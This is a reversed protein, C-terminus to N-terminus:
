ELTKIQQKVEDDLGALAARLAAEEAAIATLRTESAELEEVYRTRLAGEKGEKGLAGMNGQFQKQQKFINERENALTTLATKKSEMREWLRLIVLAKDYVERKLLGNSLFRKLEEYSQRKLEERRVVLRREKVRLTAEGHAPAQITFRLYQDTKESFDPSDFVEYAPRRPHEVLISLERSTTNNVQYDRWLIEWQEFHLLAGTLRLSHTEYSSGSNESIRVGLEVAYPVVIEGGAPTFPLVAEGVYEGDELVTVPGRELTLGSTNKLRLTAVPHQALKAGNYLLDKRKELLASIVPAMASQGRGVSVPTGIRYEFLEGMAQSSVNIAASSELDEINLEARGAPAPMAMPVAAAFARKPSPADYMAQPEMVSGEFEIPGAATRSEEEVVPREPTFPTYLDYVFSIPMGAVLSLSIKDLDEELRNDFIGWGQLLTRAPQLPSGPKNADPQPSASSVLRYSVRWTPAPAIYSVTLDHEGPTLRLTVQRFEEQTQATQLFFKLDSASQEDMLEVGSISQLELSSVVSSDELLLSVLATGVPQREPLEDMGLLLGRVKENAKLWLTVRRGRLSTLLDRLSRREDLNISCGELLEERSQPTAYDVGLVKGKGADIVTLSKLIDNMESTRFLLKVQETNIKASRQFFGVGHKYLTLHTIPLNPM